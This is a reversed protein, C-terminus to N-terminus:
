KVTPVDAPPVKRKKRYAFIFAPLLFIFATIVFSLFLIGFTKGVSELDFFFLEYAWKLNVIEWFGQWFQIPIM